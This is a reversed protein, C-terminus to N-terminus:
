NGSGAGRGMGALVRSDMWGMWRVGSADFGRGRLVADGFWLVFGGERSVGKERERERGKM